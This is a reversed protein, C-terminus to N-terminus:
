TLVSQGRARKARAAVDRRREFREIRSGRSVAREKGTYAPHCQSCVEVQIAPRTSRTEFTTGCNSCTVTTATLDPHIANKM